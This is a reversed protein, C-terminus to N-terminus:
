FAIDPMVNPIMSGKLPKIDKAELRGRPHWFALFSVRLNEQIDRSGDAINVCHFPVIQETLIGNQHVVIDGLGIHSDFSRITGTYMQGESLELKKGKAFFLKLYKFAM